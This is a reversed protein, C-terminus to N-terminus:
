FHIAKKLEKYDTKGTGLVPILPLVQVESIKVINAVGRERLYANMEDLNQERTSFAVLKTNGNEELAEVAFTVGESGAYKELLIQEVFPLSIMEGAIKVFRKLRGTIYLYNESDLYGIDGTKYYSVGEFVEFPSALSSDLYGTFISTGSVYIM